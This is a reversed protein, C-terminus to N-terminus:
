AFCCRRRPSWCQRAAVQSPPGTRTLSHSPCVPTCTLAASNSRHLRGRVKQRRFSSTRTPFSPRPGRPPLQGLFDPVVAMQPAQLLALEGSRTAHAADRFRPETGTNANAPLADTNGAAMHVVATPRSASRGMLLKTGNLQQWVPVTIQSLLHGISMTQHTMHPPYSEPRQMRSVLQTQFITAEIAWSWTTGTGPAVAPQM